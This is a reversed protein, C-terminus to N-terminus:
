VPSLRAFISVGHWGSWCAVSEFVTGAQCVRVCMRARTLAGAGAGDQQCAVGM